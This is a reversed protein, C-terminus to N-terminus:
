LWYYALASSGAFGCYVAFWQIKGRAIVALLLRLAGIGVVFSVAAGLLLVGAPVTTGDQLVDETQLIAAGCIAPIAIFFSYDAATARNLGMLTGAFITSGSRSVGPLIAVMQFLGIVLADPWRVESLSRGPMPAGDAGTDTPAKEGQVTDTPVETPVEMPVTTPTKPEVVPVLALLVATLLLFFGVFQPEELAQEVRDKVLLGVVVLPLTSVAVRSWLAVDFRRQWLKQRYVVLISGLTGVHVALNFDPKQLSEDLLNAGLLVHGSSSIPLFEAIGQLIGLVAAALYIM